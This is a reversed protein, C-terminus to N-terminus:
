RFRFRLEKLPLYNTPGAAELVIVQDHGEEELQYEFHEGTYPDPMAPVPSLNDLSKPLEGNHEAVHMRIAELTMLRNFRMHTRREAKKVQMAAPMLKAGIISGVTPPTTTAWEQFRQEAKERFTGSIPDPLLVGKMMEDSMRTIELSADALVCQLDPMQALREETFGHSQLHNRAPKAQTVGLATLRMATNVFRNDTLAGTAKLSDMMQMWVAQAQDETWVATKAEQLMPLVQFIAHFEWQISDNVQVFPRPLAALAWYLNPSDPHQIIELIMEESTIAAIAIAVLQQIAFEGNNVFEALRLGDGATQVAGDLDNQNLQHRVRLILFRALRRAQQVDPLLYQYVASGELDRLRHDWSFDEALALEHVQEFVSELSKMAEALQEPSPGNQHNKTLWDETEYKQWSQQGRDLLNTNIRMYHLMASLPKQEWVTPRLRYKLAPVPEAAPSVELIPSRKERQDSSKEKLRELTMASGPPGADNQAIVSASCFSILLSATLYKMTM